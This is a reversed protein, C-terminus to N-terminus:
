AKNKSKVFDAFLKVDKPYQELHNGVVVMDAGSTIAKDIGETSCIGGGVIIPLSINKRVKAIIDKSITKKAGSGAELYIMQQGLLEGAVATRVVTDPDSLATTASVKEVATTRGGDVLIYGTAITEIGSRKVEISNKIHQGILFEPNRGSILSLYLMADANPTFQMANGIFLVVPIDTNEKVLRVVSDVSEVIQSGGVFIYDPKANNILSIFDLLTNGSCKEPDILVAFLKKGESVSKQIDFIISNKM